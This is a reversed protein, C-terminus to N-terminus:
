LEVMDAHASFLAFNVGRGDATSGLPYPSGALLSYKEGQNM